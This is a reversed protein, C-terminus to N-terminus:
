SSAVTSYQLNSKRAPVDKIANFCRVASYTWAIASEADVIVCLALLLHRKKKLVTKSWYVEGGRGM